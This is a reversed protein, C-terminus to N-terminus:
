KRAGTEETRLEYTYTEIQKREAGIVVLRETPWTEVVGRDVAVTRKLAEEWGEAEIAAVAGRPIHVKFEEGHLLIGHVLDVQDTHDFLTARHKKMLSVLEKDFAARIEAFKGLPGEYRERVAKLEAELRLELSQIQGSVAAIEVLLHEARELTKM